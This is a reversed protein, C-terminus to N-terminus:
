KKCAVANSQFMADAVRASHSTEEALGRPLHSVDLLVVVLPEAPSNEGTEGSNKICKRARGDIHYTPCLASHRTIGMLHQADESGLLCGNLSLFGARTRYGLRSQKPHLINNTIFSTSLPLYHNDELFIGGREIPNDSFIKIAVVFLFHLSM